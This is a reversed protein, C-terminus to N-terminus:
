APCGTCGCFCYTRYGTMPLFIGFETSDSCPKLISLATFAALVIASVMQDSGNFDNEAKQREFDTKGPPLQAVIRHRQGRGVSSVIPFRCLEFNGPGPSRGNPFRSPPEAVTSDRRYLLLMVIPLWRDLKM